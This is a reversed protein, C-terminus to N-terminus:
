SRRWNLPPQLTALLELDAPEDVDWLEELLCPQLGLREMAAQTQAFVRSSGWEIHRFLAPQPRRLGILVYGGDRAPGLVCEHGSQLADLAKRLYGATLPPCDTGIILLYDTEPRALLTEACAAMRQGLDEGKQVYIEESNCHSLFYEHSSNETIWLSMSALGSQRVLGLTRDSMALHLALAADAGIAPILRTKVRGLEPTRAFVAIHGRPFAFPQNRSPTEPM